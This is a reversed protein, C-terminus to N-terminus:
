VEERDCSTPWRERGNRNSADRGSSMRHEQSASSSRKRRRRGNSGRNPDIGRVIDIVIMPVRVAGYLSAGILAPIWRRLFLMDRFFFWLARELARPDRLYRPLHKALLRIWGKERRRGDSSISDASDHKTGVIDGSCAAEGLDLMRIWLDWEQNSQMLPDFGGTADFADKRLLVMSTCGLVNEELISGQICPRFVETGDESEVLYPSCVLCVGESFMPLQSELRRPSWEDDDDLFAIFGDDCLSAGANRASGGTGECRVAVTPVDGHTVPIEKGSFVIVIREPRVTQALVSRYARALAEPRDHSLIM